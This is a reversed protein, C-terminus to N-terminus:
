KKLTKKWKKVVVEEKRGEGMGEGNFKANM